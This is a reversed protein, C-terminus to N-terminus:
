GGGEQMGLDVAQGQEAGQEGGEQEELDSPDGHQLDEMGGVLVGQLTHTAQAGEGRSAQTGTHVTLNQKLNISLPKAM